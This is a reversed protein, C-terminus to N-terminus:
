SWVAEASSSERYQISVGLLHADTNYSDASIDRTIRFLVLNDEAHTGQVTCAGTGTILTIHLDNDTGTGAQPDAAAPTGFTGGFFDDSHTYTLGELAWVVTGTDTNSTKWYYRARVAGRDWQEPMVIKFQTYEDTSADFAFYDVTGKTAASEETGAQAGNTVSPVMSGADVYITRYNLGTVAGDCKVTDFNGELWRKSTTGIKGQSDARPIINPTAM